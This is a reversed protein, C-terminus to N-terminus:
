DKFLRQAFGHLSKRWTQFEHGTGPAEYYVHKVSAKELTEHISRGTGAGEKSGMSIYFVRVQGASNVQPYQLGVIHTSAPQFDNPEASAVSQQARCAQCWFVLVMVGAVLDHRMISRDKAYTRNADPQRSQREDDSYHARDVRTSGVFQWNRPWVEKILGSLFIALSIFIFISTRNRIADACFYTPAMQRVNTQRSM